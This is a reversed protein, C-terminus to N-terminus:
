TTLRNRRAVGKNNKARERAVRDDNEQNRWINEHAWGLPAECSKCFLNGGKVVPPFVEGECEPCNM